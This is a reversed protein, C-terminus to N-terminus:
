CVCAHDSRWDTPLVHWRGYWRIFSTAVMLGDAAAAAGSRAGQPSKSHFVVSHAHMCASDSLRTQSKAVRHVTARWTGRDTPFLQPMYWLFSKLSGLSKYRGMWLFATFENVQSPQNEKILLVRNINRSGPKQQLSEQIDQSKEWRKLVGQLLRLPHRRPKLGWLSDASYFM